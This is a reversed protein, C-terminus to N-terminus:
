AQAPILGEANDSRVTRYCECARQELGARNVVRIRGRNGLILGDTELKRAATSVGERRVGLLRAIHEQTFHLSDGTSRDLTMLIWRCLQQDLKHHRNCVATQAMQVMLDLTCKFALAQLTGGRAYEARIVSASARWCAGPSDVVARTAPIEAGLCLFAGVIGERGTLAVASSEGGHTAGLLSVIATTPFYIHTTSAGPELLVQGLQLDVLELHPLLREYEGAQLAALM